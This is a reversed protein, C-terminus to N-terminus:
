SLDLIYTEFDLLDEFLEDPSVKYWDNYIGQLEFWTWANGKSCYVRKMSRNGIWGGWLNHPIQALLGGLDYHKGVMSKCLELYKPENFSFKPRKVVVFKSHELSEEITRCIVKPWIAEYCYIQGDRIELLSSHNFKSRTFIQEIRGVAITKEYLLSDGTRLDSKKIKPAKM